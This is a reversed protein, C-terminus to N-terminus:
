RIKTNGLDYVRLTNDQDLYQDVNATIPGNGGKIAQNNIVEGFNEQAFAFNFEQDIDAVKNITTTSGDFMAFPNWGGSVKAMAKASMEKTVSLDKIKLM